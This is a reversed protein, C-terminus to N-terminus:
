RCQRPYPLRRGRCAYQYRKQCGCRIGCGPRGIRLPIGRLVMPFNLAMSPVCGFVGGYAAPYKTEAGSRDNSFLRWQRKAVRSKVSHQEDRSGGKWKIFHSNVFTCKIQQVLGVNCNRWLLSFDQKFPAFFLTEVIESVSRLFRHILVSKTPSRSLFHM